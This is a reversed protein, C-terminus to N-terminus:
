RTQRGAPLDVKRVVRLMNFDLPKSLKICFRSAWTKFSLVYVLIITIVTQWSLFSFNYIESLFALLLLSVALYFMLILIEGTYNLRQSPYSEQTKDKAYDFFIKSDDSKFSELGKNIVKDTEKEFYERMTELSNAEFDIVERTYSISLFLTFLASLFSLILFFRNLDLDGNYFYGVGIIAVVLTSITKFLDLQSLLLQSRNSLRFNNVEEKLKFMESITDKIIQKHEENM